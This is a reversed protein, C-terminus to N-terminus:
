LKENYNLFVLSEVLDPNPEPSDSKITIQNKTFADRPLAATCPICLYGRAAPALFQYRTENIHWWELPESEKHMVKELTYAQIEIELRNCARQQSEDDSDESDSGLLDSMGSKRRKTPPAVDETEEPETQQRQSEVIHGLSNRMQRQQEPTHYKLTRHRPDLAAAITSTTPKELLAELQFSEKMSAHITEKLKRMSAPDDDEVELKKEMSRLIARLSSVSVFKEQALVNVARALPMLVKVIAHITEWQQDTLNLCVDKVEDDKKLVEIAVSIFQQQKALSVCMEFISTWHHTLDEQVISYQQGAHKELEAAAPTGPKFYSAISRAAIITGDIDPFVFASSICENLLVGMCKMPDCNMAQKLLDMAEAMEKSDDHVVASIMGEDIDYESLNDLVLQLIDEASRDDPDGIESVSLIYSQVSHESSVLHVMIVLAESTAGVVTYCSLAVTDTDQILTKLKTRGSMYKTRLLDEFYKMSPIQYTPKLVHLLEKFGVGDVISLSLMDRTICSLIAETVAGMNQDGGGVLPLVRPLPVASSTSPATNSSESDAVPYALVVDAHSASLTDGAMAVVYPHKRELHHRMGTTSGYFRMEQQCVKCKTIKPNVKAFYKWVISVKPSSAMICQISNADTYLTVVSTEKITVSCM